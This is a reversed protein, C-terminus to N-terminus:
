LRDTLDRFGFGILPGDVGRALAIVKFREGMEGPLMLTAV